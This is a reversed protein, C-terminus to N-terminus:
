IEEFRGSRLFRVTASIARENSMVFSHLAKVLLFEHEVDLRTSDVTVTGDDDGELLPNYGEADGKGGAIVGFPCSPPPVAAVGGPSLDQGSKGTVWEFVIWDSLAEAVISGRNPPAMQVLRGVEIRQKWAADQALAARVVIGGLSHTVFSVRTHDEDRDLIRTLQAAHEAISRRTSPYNVGEVDFGAERLARELKAFSSKTRFLGHVLVVLHQSPPEIREAIRREELVVRCAEFTGWARRTDQPDLLRHHGTLANQQIRWGCRIMEDGWYQAGGLTTLPVNWRGTGHRERLEALMRAECAELTGELLVVSEGPAEGEGEGVSVLRHLDGERARELALGLVPPRLRVFGDAGQGFAPSTLGLLVALALSWSVIM